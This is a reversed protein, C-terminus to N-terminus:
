LSQVQRRDPGPHDITSPSLGTWPSGHYKAVTRDLTISQVQCCDAGPHDNCLM